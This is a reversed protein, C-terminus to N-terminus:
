KKSLMLSVIEPVVNNTQMWITKLIRLAVKKNAVDIDNNFFEILFTLLPGLIVLNQETCIPQICLEEFCTTLLRLFM